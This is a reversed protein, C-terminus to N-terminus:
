VLFGAWYHVLDRLRDVVPLDAVRDALSRQRNVFHTVIPDALVGRGQVIAVKGEKRKHERGHTKKMAVQVFDVHQADALLGICTLAPLKLNSLVIRLTAGLERAAGRANHWRDPAYDDYPMRWSSWDNIDINLIRLRLLGNVVQVANQIQHGAAMRIDVELLGPFLDSLRMPFVGHDDHFM